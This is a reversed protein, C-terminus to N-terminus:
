TGVRRSTRPDRELKAPMDAPLVNNRGEPRRPAGRIFGAHRHHEMDCVQGDRQRRDQWKQSPPIDDRVTKVAPIASYEIRGSSDERLNDGGPSAPDQEIDSM